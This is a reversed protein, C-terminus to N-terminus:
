MLINCEFEILESVIWKSIKRILPSNIIISCSLHTKFQLTNEDSNFTSCYGYLGLTTKFLQECPTFKDEVYRRWLCTMARNSYDNWRRLFVWITKMWFPRCYSQAKTQIFEKTVLDVLKVSSTWCTIKQHMGQFIASWKLPRFHFFTWHTLHHFGPDIIWVVTFLQYIWAVNLLPYCWWIISFLVSSLLWGGSFEAFFDRYYASKYILLM